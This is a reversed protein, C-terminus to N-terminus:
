ETTHTVMYAIAIVCVCGFIMMHFDIDVNDGRSSFVQFKSAVM